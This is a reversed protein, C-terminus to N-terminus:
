EFCGVFDGMNDAGGVWDGFWGGVMNWFSNIGVLNGDRVFEGVFSGVVFEGVFLNSISNSNPIVGM